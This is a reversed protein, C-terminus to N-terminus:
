RQERLTQEAATFRKQMDGAFRWRERGDGRLSWGIANGDGDTQLALAYGRPHFVTANILWLLGSESLESFPRCDDEAAM